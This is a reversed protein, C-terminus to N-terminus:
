IPGTKKTRILNEGELKMEANSRKLTVLRNSFVKGLDQVKQGITFLSQFLEDLSFLIKGLFRGLLVYVAAFIKGLHFFIQGSRTVSSWNKDLTWHQQKTPKQRRQSKELCSNQWRWISKSLVNWRLIYWSEEILIFELQASYLTYWLTFVRKTYQTNIRFVFFTYNIYNMCACASKTYKTCFHDVVYFHRYWSRAAFKKQTEVLMTSESNTSRYWQGCEFTSIAAFISLIPRRGQTVVIFYHM